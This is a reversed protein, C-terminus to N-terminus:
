ISAWVTTRVDYREDKITQADQRQQSRDRRTGRVCLAMPPWWWLTTRIINNNNTTTAGGMPQQTLTRPRREQSLVRSEGKAQVGARM